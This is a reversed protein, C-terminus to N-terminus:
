IQKVEGEKLTKHIDWLTELDKLSLVATISDVREIKELADYIDKAKVKEFRISDDLFTHVGYYTKM